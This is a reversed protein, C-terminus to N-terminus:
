SPVSVDYVLSDNAAITNPFEEQAQRVLPLVDTYRASFHTLILQKVRAKRALVAAERATSHMNEVANQKNEDSYTSDFILVDCGRFFKELKKNPRTDGSIGIRKGKRLPGCVQEPSVTKGTKSKVSKGHQLESWLPGEPVGLRQAKKPYFRGPKEKEEFVYSYSSTSHESREAFVRYKSQKSEFAKGARVEKVNVNFTIGFNLINKNEVIFEIIKKPGFVQLDRQRRYMAMTQLLGLLGVVHDGHMHTIFIQCEKNFGLGSVIASRQSGEGCDFYVLTNEYSVVVCSLARDRTPVASATGLFHIKFDTM